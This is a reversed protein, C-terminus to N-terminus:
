NGSVDITTGLPVSLTTMANMARPRRGEAGAFGRLAKFRPFLEKHVEVRTANWHWVKGSLADFLGM